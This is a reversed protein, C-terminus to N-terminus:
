SLAEIAKALDVYERIARIKGGGVEFVFCYENEYSKGTASVGRNVLEIIVTDGDGYTRKLESKLGDPFSQAITGLFAAVEAKGKKTGSVGPIKGTIFWSVDDAFNALAGEPDGGLLAQWTKQVFAKNREVDAM